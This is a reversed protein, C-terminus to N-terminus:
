IRKEWANQFKGCNVPESITDLVLTVMMNLLIDIRVDDIARVDRQFFEFLLSVVIHVKVWRRINPM